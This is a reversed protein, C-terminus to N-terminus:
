EGAGRRRAKQRYMEADADALLKDISSHRGADFRVRGVSWRL